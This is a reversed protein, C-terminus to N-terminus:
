EWCMEVKRPHDYMLTIDCVRPASLYSVAGAVYSTYLSIQPGQQIYSIPDAPQPCEFLSRANGERRRCDGTSVVRQQRHIGQQEATTSSATSHCGWKESCQSWEGPPQISTKNTHLLLNRNLILQEHMRCFSTCCYCCLMWSTEM